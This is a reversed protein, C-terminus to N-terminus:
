PFPWCRGRCRCGIIGGSGNRRINPFVIFGSSWRTCIAPKIYNTIASWFCYCFRLVGESTRFVVAGLALGENSRKLAPYLSIAIGSACLGGIFLLLAATAVLGGNTSVSVLYDPATAPATFPFSLFGGATDIIFLVGAIIALKRYYDM